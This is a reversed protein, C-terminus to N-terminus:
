GELCTVFNMRTTKQYKFVDTLADHILHVCKISLLLFAIFLFQMTASMYRELVCRGTAKLWHSRPFEHPISKSEEDAAKLWFRSSGM